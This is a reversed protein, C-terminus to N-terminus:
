SRVIIGLLLLEATVEAETVGPSGEAYTLLRLNVEADRAIYAAPVAASTADVTQGLVGVATDGAGAWQNLNGSGDLGVVTGAELVGQGSAVVGNERSRHGNAESLVFAWDHNRETLAAM